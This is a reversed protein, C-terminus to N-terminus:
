DFSKIAYISAGAKGAKAMKGTVDLTLVMQGYPTLELEKGWKGTYIVKAEGIEEQQTTRYLTSAIMHATLWCEVEKLLTTTMTSDGEFVKDVVASAAIILRDIITTSVNCDSDMIQLVEANTTRIAMM